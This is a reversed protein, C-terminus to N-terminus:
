HPMVDEVKVWLEDKPSTWVKDVFYGSIRIWGNVRYNSTFSTREEWEIVKPGNTSRYLSAIKNLRYTRATTDISSSQAVVPSENRMQLKPFISKKGRQNESCIEVKEKIIKVEEKKNININKNNKIKNELNKIKNYKVELEKLLIENKQKEDKLEIELLMLKDQVNEYDLRLKQIDSVISEIREIEDADLLSFILTIIFLLKM